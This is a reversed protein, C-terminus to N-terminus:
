DIGGIGIAIIVLWFIIWGLRSYIMELLELQNPKEEKVEKKKTKKKWFKM